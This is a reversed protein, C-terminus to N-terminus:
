DGKMFRDFAENALKRADCVHMDKELERWMWVRLYDSFMHIWHINDDKDKLVIAYDLRVDRRYDFQNTVGLYIYDKANLYDILESVTFCDLISNDDEHNEYSLNGGNYRILLFNTIEEITM